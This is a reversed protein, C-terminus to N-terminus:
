SALHSAMAACSETRADGVLRSLRPAIEIRADGFAVVVLRERARSLAVRYLDEREREPVPSSARWLARPDNELLLVVGDFERGKSKHITMVQITASVGAKELLIRKRISREFVILAQAVDLTGDSKIMPGLLGLVHDAFLGLLPIDRQEFPTSPMGTPLKRKPTRLLENFRDLDHSFKDLARQGNKPRRLARVKGAIYEALREYEARPTGDPAHVSRALAELTVAVVPPDTEGRDASLWHDPLLSFLFRGYQLLVGEDFWLSARLRSLPYAESGESLKKQVHAAASNTSTLVAIAARKGVECRLRDRLDQVALGAHTELHNPNGNTNLRPVSKLVAEGGVYLGASDSDYRALVAVLEPCHRCRAGGLSHITFEEPKLDALTQKYVDDPDFSKMSGYVSQGPGRLLVLCSSIGLLKILEHLAPDVDQHEDIIVLPYLASILERIAPVELASRAATHLGDFTYGIHGPPIPEGGVEEKGLLWPRLSGHDPVYRAYATALWWSFAGFTDIRVRQMEERVQLRDRITPQASLSAEVQGVYTERIRAVANRAFTLFLVRQNPAGVIRRTRLEHEALQCGFYTKGVGPEGLVLRVRAASTLAAQRELEAEEQGALDDTPTM